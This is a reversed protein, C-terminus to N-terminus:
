LGAWDGTPAPKGAFLDSRHIAGAEGTNAPLGAGVLASHCERIHTTPAATRRESKGAFVPVAPAMWRLMKMRGGTAWSVGYGSLDGGQDVLPM